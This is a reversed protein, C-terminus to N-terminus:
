AAMLEPTEVVPVSFLQNGASDSVRVHWGFRGGFMAEDIAILEAFQLAANPDSFERGQFDIELQVQGVLDFFYRRM